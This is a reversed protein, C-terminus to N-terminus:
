EDHSTIRKYLESKEPDGPTISPSKSKGPTMLRAFSDLRFKGKAKEQGHCTQCQKMLVPAVDRSFSVPREDAAAARAATCLFLLLMTLSVSIHRNLQMQSLKISSGKGSADSRDGRGQSVVWSQNSVNAENANHEKCPLFCRMFLDRYRAM